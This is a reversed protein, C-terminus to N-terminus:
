CWWGWLWTTMTWLCASISGLTGCFACVALVVSVAIALIAAVVGAVALAIVWESDVVEQRKSWSVVYPSTYGNIMRGGGIAQFVEAVAHVLAVQGMRGDLNVARLRDSLSKEISNM